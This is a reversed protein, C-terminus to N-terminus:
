KKSSKTKKTTKKVEKKVVKKTNEKKVPEKKVEVKKPQEKKTAKKVEKKPKSIEKEKKSIEKLKKKADELKKKSDNLKQEKELKLKLQKEAERKAKAQERAVRRKEERTKAKELEKRRKEEKDKLYKEIKDDQKKKDLESQTDTYNSDKDFFDRKNFGALMFRMFAKSNTLWNIKVNNKTNSVMREVLFEAVKDPTDGLINYVKKTKEPLNIKQEGFSHTTFPTIMIGPSLKGVIIGTNRLEVEQALGETYYTVARKATGYMNLGIRHADNSGFGEVNYIAGFGQKLMRSCAVQCGLITGKLDIDLLRDIDKENLEWLAKDPQNVGANNIWIDVQKFKVITYDLLAELDKKKTVDCVCSGLEGDSEVKKLENIAKDLDEQKLDSIVVNYGNKRFNDALNYGLGRASRTIVVTKMGM